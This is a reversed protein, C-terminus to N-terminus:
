LEGYKDIYEKSPKFPVLLDHKVKFSNISNMEFHQFKIKGDKSQRVFDPRVPLNFVSYDLNLDNSNFPLFIQFNYYGWSFIFTFEPSNYEIKKRLLLAIPKLLIPKAEDNIIVTLPIETKTQMEVNNIWNLGTTFYKLDETKLLSLAIKMLSKYVYLPVFPYSITEFKMKGNVIENKFEKSNLTTVLTKENRFQTVSDNLYDNHKKFGGKGKIPIFLNKVAFNRLSNEYNVGFKHNCNKCENFSFLDKSGTFEPILHAKSKFNKKETEGCYRCIYKENEPQIYRLNSNYLEYVEQINGIDYHIQRNNDNDKM